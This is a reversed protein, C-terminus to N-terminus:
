RSFSGDTSGPGVSGETTDVGARRQAQVEMLWENAADPDLRKVERQIQPPQKAMVEMFRDVEEPLLRLVGREFVYDNGIRYNMMPHSTFKVFKVEQDEDDDSEGRRRRRRPPGDDDEERQRALFEQGEERERRIVADEPVPHPMDAPKPNPEDERGQQDHANPDTKDVPHQVPPSPVDTEKGHAPDNQLHAHQPNNAGPDWRTPARSQTGPANPSGKLNKMDKEDKDSKDVKDAMTM